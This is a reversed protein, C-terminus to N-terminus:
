LTGRPKGTATAVLRRLLNYRSLQKQCTLPIVRGHAKVAAIRAHALM